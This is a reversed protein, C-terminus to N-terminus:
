WSAKLLTHIISHEQWKPVVVYHLEPYSAIIEEIHYGGLFYTKPQPLPTLSYLQWDLARTHIGIDKLAAPKKGAAPKGAGLFFVVFNMPRENSRSAPTPNQRSM